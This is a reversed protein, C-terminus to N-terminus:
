ERPNVARPRPAHDPSPAPQTSAVETPDIGRTRKLWEDFAERSAPSSFLARLRALALAQASSVHHSRKPNM